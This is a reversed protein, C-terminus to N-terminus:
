KIRNLSIGDSVYILMGEHDTRGIAIGRVDLARIISRVPHGYTNGAGCSIAAFKPRVVDLLADSTSTAAGHHGLKLLDASLQEPPYAALLLAEATHEADGMLLVATNGYCVRTVVSADNSSKVDVALPGLLTVTADGLRFCEGPEATRVATGFSAAAEILRQFSEEESALAPLIVEGVPISRLLADGGGIHDEDPHTFIVTDLEAVGLEDLAFLLDEEASNPGADVLMAAGGTRILIADGQGVDLVYVAFPADAGPSGACASLLLCLVSLIAAVLALSGLTRGM